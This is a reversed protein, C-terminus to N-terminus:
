KKCNQNHYLTIVFKASIKGCKNCVATEKKVGKMAASTNPRKKGKMKEGMKKYRDRIEEQSYSEFVKQHILRKTRDKELQTRKNHTNKWKEVIKPDSMPGNITLKNRYEEGHSMGCVGDGGDTLNTLTGKKLNARGYSEILEKEIECAKGWTINDYLIDVCYNTKKIVSLWYRNRQNKSFARLHRGDIDSGIGIYFVTNNDLRTHKYVYAM